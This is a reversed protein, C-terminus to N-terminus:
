CSRPSDHASRPAVAAARDQSRAGGLLRSLKDTLQSLPQQAPRSADPFAARFEDYSEHELVVLGSEHRYIYHVEDRLRVVQIERKPGLSWVTVVAAEARGGSGHLRGLLKLCVLLLAFVVAMGGLTQWWSFGAGGGVLPQAAAVFHTTCVAM